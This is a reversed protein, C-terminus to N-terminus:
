YGASKLVELNSKAKQFNPDINITKKWYKVADVFDNESACAIGINYYVEAPLNANFFIAKKYIDVANSFNGIKLYVNALNIFIEYDYPSLKIANNYNEVALSFEGKKALVNGLNNYASVLKPNLLIAKKYMDIADDYRAMKQYLNGLNSYNEAYESNLRIAENYEALAKDFLGRDAYDNGLYTHMRPRDPSFKLTYKYLTQRDKWTFNQKITLISLFIVAVVVFILVPWRLFNTKSLNYLILAVLMFFGISPFYMWHEAMLANLPFFLNSVPLFGILFWASAFLMTKSVKRNRIFVYSSIIMLILGSMSYFNFIDSVPKVARDMHLNLPLSLIKLYSALIYCATLIRTSFSLKNIASVSVNFNFGRFIIYAVVVCLFIGYRKFWIKAFSEKEEKKLFLRDLLVLFLPFVLSVEKSMLALVFSIVSIVYFITKKFEQGANSYNIFFILSILSFLTALPDARGSIYTIAATHIPHVAFLVSTVVAVWKNQLIVTIIIFILIANLSHIFINTLHYGLPNQHWFSYDLMFSFSQIPRYFNEGLTLGPFLGLKFINIVNQWSKILPNNIVLELDDLVFQNKFSNLYVTFVLVLLLIIIALNLKYKSPNYNM